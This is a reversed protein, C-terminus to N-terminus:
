LYNCLQVYDIMDNEYLVSPKCYLHCVENNEIKKGLLCMNKPIVQRKSVDIKHTVSKLHNSYKNETKQKLLILHNKMETCFEINFTYHKKCIEGSIKFDNNMQDIHLIKYLSKEGSVFYEDIIKTYTFIDISLNERAVLIPDQYGYKLLYNQWEYKPVQKTDVRIFPIDEGPLAETLGLKVRARNIHAAVEDYGDGDSEYGNFKRYQVFMSLPIFGNQLYLLQLRLFEKVMICRIVKEREESIYGDINYIHDKDIMFYRTWCKDQYVFTISHIDSDIKQIRDSPKCWGINPIFMEQDIVENPPLVCIKNNQMCLYWGMLLINHINKEMDSLLPLVKSQASIVGKRTYNTQNQNLYVYRKKQIYHLASITIGEIKLTLVNKMSCGIYSIIYKEIEDYLYQLLDNLIIETTVKREQILEKIGTISSCDIINGFVFEKKGIDGTINQTSLESLTKLRPNISIMLSDTDGYIVCPPQNLLQHKFSNCSNRLNTLLERGFATIVNALLPNTFSTQNPSMNQGIISVMTNKLTKDQIQINDTLQKIKQRQQKLNFLIDPLIGKVVENQYIYLGKIPSEYTGNEFKNSITTVCLNFAKIISAYMSDFDITIVPKFTYCSIPTFVIGGQINKHTPNKVVPLVINSNRLNRTISINYIESPKSGNANHFYIFNVSSNRVIQCFTAIMNKKNQITEMENLIEKGTCTKLTNTINMVTTGLGSFVTPKNSLKLDKKNQEIYVLREYRLKEQWECTPFCNPHKTLMVHFNNLLQHHSFRERLLVFQKEIDCICLISYNGDIIYKFFALLLQKENSFLETLIDGDIPRSTTLKKAAGNNQIFITHISVNAMYKNRDYYNKPLSDLQKNDFAQDYKRKQNCIQYDSEIYVYINRIEPTSVQDPLKTIRSCSYNVKIYRDCRMKYWQSWCTNQESYSEIEYWNCLGDLGVNSAMVGSSFVDQYSNHTFLSLGKSLLVSELKKMFSLDNSSIEMVDVFDKFIQRRSKHKEIIKVASIFDEIFGQNKKYDDYKIQIVFPVNHIEIICVKEFEDYACLALINPKQNTLYSSFIYFM